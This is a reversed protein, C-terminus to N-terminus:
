LERFAEQAQLIIIEQVEVVQVELVEQHARVEPIDQEVAVVVQMHLQVQQLVQQQVQEV